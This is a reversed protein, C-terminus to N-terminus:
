PEGERAGGARAGANARELCRRVGRALIEAIEGLPDTAADAQVLSAPENIPDDVRNQLLGADHTMPLREGLLESTGEQCFATRAGCVHRGFIAHAM